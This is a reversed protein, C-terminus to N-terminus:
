IRNKIIDSTINPGLTFIMDIISLKDQYDIGLQKYPLYSFNQYEISINQKLFIEENLYNKAKLGSHYNDAKEVLCINLLSESKEIPLDAYSSRLRLNINIKLYKCFFLLLALNLDILFKHKSELIKELEFYVEQFYDTKGYIQKITKLHKSTWNSSYSIEIESIKTNLRNKKIPVTLWIFGGNPNKVRNRNIWSNKSFQFDDGFVFTDSIFIQNFVGAWPIYFPQLVVVTKM